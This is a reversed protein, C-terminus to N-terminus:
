VINGGEDILINPMRLDWYHLVFQQDDTGSSRMRFNEARWGSHLTTFFNAGFTGRLKVSPFYDEVLM